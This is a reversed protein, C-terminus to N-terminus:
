SEFWSSYYYKILIDYSVWGGVETSFPPESIIIYTNKWVADELRGQMASDCFHHSIPHMELLPPSGLADLCTATAGGNKWGRREGTQVRGKRKTVM